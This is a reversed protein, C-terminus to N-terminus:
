DVLDLALGMLNLESFPLTFLTVCINFIYLLLLGFICLHESSPALGLLILAQDLRSCLHVQLYM